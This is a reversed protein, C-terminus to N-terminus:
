AFYIFSNHFSASNFPIIIIIISWNNIGAIVQQEKDISELQKAWFAYFYHLDYTIILVINLRMM